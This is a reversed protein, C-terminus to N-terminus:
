FDGRRSLPIKFHSKKKPIPSKDGKNIYAPAWEMIQTFAYFYM